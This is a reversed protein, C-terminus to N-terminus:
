LVVCYWFMGYLVFYVVKSTVHTFKNPLMSHLFVCVNWLHSLNNPIDSILGFLSIIIDIMELAQLVKCVVYHAHPPQNCYM